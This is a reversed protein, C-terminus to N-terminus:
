KSPAKQASEFAEDGLRHVAQYYIGATIHCLLGGDQAECALSMNEQLNYDCLDKSADPTAYCEDHERCADSWDVGFGGDPVLSEVGYSGCYDPRTPSVPTTM